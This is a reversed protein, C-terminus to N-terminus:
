NFDQSATAVPTNPNFGSHYWLHLGAERHREEFRPDTPFLKNVSYIELGSISEFHSASLPVEKKMKVVINGNYVDGVKEIHTMKPQNYERKAEDITCSGLLISIFTALLIYKKKM